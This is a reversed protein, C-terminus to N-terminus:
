PKQRKLMALIYSRIRAGTRKEFAAMDETPDRKPLKGEGNAHAALLEANTM